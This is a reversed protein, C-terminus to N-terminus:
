DTLKGQAFGRKSLRRERFSAELRLRLRSPTPLAPVQAARAAEQLAFGLVVSGHECINRMSSLFIREVKRTLMKVRCEREEGCSLRAIMAPRSAQHELSGAFSKQSGYIM